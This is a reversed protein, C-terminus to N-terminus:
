HKAKDPKGKDSAHRKEIEMVDDTSIFGTNVQFVRDYSENESIEMTKAVVKPKGVLGNM